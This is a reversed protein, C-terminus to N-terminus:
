QGRPWPLLRSGCQYAGVAQTVVEAQVLRMATLLPRQHLDCAQTPRILDTSTPLTATNEPQVADSGSVCRFHRQGERVIHPRVRAGGEEGGKVHMRAYGM